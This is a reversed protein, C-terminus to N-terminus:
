QIFWKWAPIVRIRKGSDLMIDKENDLTVIIAESVDLYKMAKNLASVERKETSEDSLQYSVQILERQEPLFFDIEYNQKYYFVPQSSRHNLENFVANEFLKTDQEFLFLNLIGTDAFYYKKKIEREVFKKAANSVTKILYSEQFHELYDIVTHVGIKLGTAALLNRIRTFSTESNVSEAMKKVLIELARKNKIQYRLLVDGYIVKRYLTSLYDPADNVQFREPFGGLHLYDNFRNKVKFATRGYQWHEELQIGQFELSESFRLPNVEHSSFRGGLSASIEKSLMAANSGTVFLQYNEDALRRCFLEWNIINQIEDFFLIPKQDFLERYAEIILQLDASNMGVLREDEFNIYLIRDSDGAQMYKQIQQFLIYSKGARRPGIIVYNRSPDFSINRPRVEISAIRQQNNIIINKLLQRM